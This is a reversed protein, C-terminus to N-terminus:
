KDTWIGYKKAWGQGAFIQLCRPCYIIIGPLEAVRGVEVPRHGFWRCWLRKLHKM